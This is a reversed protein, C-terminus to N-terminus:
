PTDLPAEEAARREDLDVFRYWEGVELNQYKDTRWEYRPSKATGTNEFFWIENRFEQLFLDHDGDADIDVFQPRPVDLGGLFPVDFPRGSEDALNGPGHQQGGRGALPLRQERHVGLDYLPQLAVVAVLGADALVKLQLSVAGFTVDPMSQHIAGATLEEDWLLRLIERERATLRFM